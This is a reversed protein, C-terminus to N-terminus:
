RYEDVNINYRKMWRHVQMREKGFERGVAAVNGRHQLLLARLEQETPVSGRAKPRPAETATSPASAPAAGARRRGYSQMLDKIEDPLHQADLASGDSLAVGRKIIAELERVNFPYDYHLLGTMFAFSLGIEPRGHRALLGRCLAFVDEKRERLPPLTLSYENLRAYLDGRFRGERQLRGLDRHTACVVRVDVREPQTAGIPIVEKSQLVRLLKAQAEIPMDGIEDLLLTGGDAARVLGIKDRDAGSFAGRKYGFLESELLPAPIAACNVARFAGRRGSMSHLHEAFVEKGTGSEGLLVVSIPSRAVRDLATALRDIQYGGILTSRARRREAAEVSGEGLIVGDIRYRAYSEAGSEVFKFIADGVRLEDLHELVVEDVFEGNVITGNRGGLDSLVWRGERFHVRAHQRSVAAEPVCIGAAPERGITLDRDHLLYAPAFQEYSPAYLLVLGARTSGDPAATSGYVQM